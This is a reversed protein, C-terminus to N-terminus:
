DGHTPDENAPAQGNALLQFYRAIPLLTFGTSEYALRAPEHGPDGGTEVVAIDMGSRRLHDLTVNILERAIGRRQRAPDVAIMEIAGMRPQYTDLAAAAFGVPQQAVVAVFVCTQDQTCTARVAEAQGSRWEPHLRSFIAEGLVQRLSAFVPAWARLSLDVIGDLDGDQLERITTV